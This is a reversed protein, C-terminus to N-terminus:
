SDPGLPEEVGLDLAGQRSEETPEPSKREEEAPTPLDGTEFVSGEMVKALLSGLKPYRELSHEMVWLLELLEETMTATWRDPRIDDLPSSSKGHGSRMRYSLWTKVAEYGSISFDFVEPAVPRFEGRGVKLTQTDEAYVFDNPYDERKPSVATACRARGRPITGATAGEPVFREGYTHLWILERGLESLTSFLGKDKTIPVRPGSVALEESFEDTYANSALVAYCYALFDEPSIEQGLEGSITDLLGETLNPDTASSNRWLPVADKGGFSGRFHHLDPVYATVIAAPGSGLVTTLL